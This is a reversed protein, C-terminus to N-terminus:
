RVSRGDHRPKSAASEPCNMGAHAYGRVFESLRAARLPVAAPHLRGIGGGTAFSLDKCVSQAEPRPM